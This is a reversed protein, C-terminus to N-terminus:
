MDCVHKEKLQEVMDPVNMQPVMSAVNATCKKMTQMTSSAMIEKSFDIAKDQADERKGASCLSKVEAELQKSRQELAKLENTDIDAMCEQMEQMQQMIVQMDQQDMGQPAQAMAPAAMLIAATTILHKM